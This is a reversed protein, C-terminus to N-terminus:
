IEHYEGKCKMDNYGCDPLKHIEKHCKKCFTIVNDLDASELPEWRIGEIHHCHLGVELEDQTKGCKQCTYNDREFCIQRLEPQVERSYYKTKSEEASYKQKRYIQCEKKCKESCYLRCESSKTYNGNLAQIRNYVNSQKPIFWKGCYTCKVELINLDQENRRIKECFSIQSAYTDYLPINKKKVGGKYWPHKKNKYINKLTEGIRKKIDDSRNKVAESIKKCHEESFKMGKRGESIRRKHYESLKKGM